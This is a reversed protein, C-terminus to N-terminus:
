SFLMASLRRRGSIVVPDAGGLAEFIKILQKRAAEDEWKPARGFLDLLGEVADENRGQGYLALGLDFRAQYDNEDRELKAQLEEVDGSDQSQRSLDVQACAAAIEPKRRLDPTLSEIMEKARDAEGTALAARIMGALAKENESDQSQVQEFLAGATVADGADLAAQAEDLATDIPSKAGETLKDIFSKIQSEPLAGAFGDAPQGGKFAFVAPISKIQMQTALDKNEDVNIKVLKVLGAAARVLKELTPGLQKCPGCWPAWFDVIVPVKMSAEIVDAMFNATDSDKILDGSAVTAQAAPAAEVPAAQGPASVPLGKAQNKNEDGPKEPMLSGDPNMIFEM